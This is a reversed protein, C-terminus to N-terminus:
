QKLKESPSATQHGEEGARHCEGGPRAKSFSGNQVPSDINGLKHEQWHGAAALNQTWHDPRESSGVDLRLGVFM